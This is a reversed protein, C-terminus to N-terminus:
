QGALPKLEPYRSIDSLLFPSQDQRLLYTPVAKYASFWKPDQPKEKDIFDMLAGGIYAEVHVNFKEEFDSAGNKSGYRALASPHVYVVGYGDPTATLNVYTVSGTLAVPIGDATTAEKAYLDRGEVSVRFEVADVVPSPGKPVVQYHWEVRLWKANENRGGGEQKGVESVDVLTTTIAGSNPFIIPSNAAQAFLRGGAGTVLLVFTLLGYRKLEMANLEMFPELKIAPLDDFM